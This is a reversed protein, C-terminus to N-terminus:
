PHNTVTDKQVKDDEVAPQVEAKPRYTLFYRGRYSTFKNNVAFTNHLFMIATIGNSKVFDPVNVDYYRYDMVYVTGFHLAM